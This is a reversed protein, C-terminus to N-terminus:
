RLADFVATSAGGEFGCVIRKFRCVSRIGDRAAM